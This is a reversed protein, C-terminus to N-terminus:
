FEEVFSNVFQELTQDLILHQPVHRKEILRLASSRFRQGKLWQLHSRVLHEEDSLGHEHLAFMIAELNAIIGDIEKEFRM